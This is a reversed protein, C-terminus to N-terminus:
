KNKVKYVLEKIMDEDYEEFSIEGFDKKTLQTNTPKSEGGALTLKCSTGLEFNEKCRVVACQSSTRFTKFARNRCVSQCVKLTQWLKEVGGLEFNM